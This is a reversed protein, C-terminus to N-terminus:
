LGFCMELFKIRQWKREPANKCESLFLFFQDSHVFWASATYLYQSLAPKNATFLIYFFFIGEPNEVNFVVDAENRPM